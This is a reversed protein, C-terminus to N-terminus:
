FKEEVSDKGDAVPRNRAELALGAFWAVIALGFLVWFVARVGTPVMTGSDSTIDWEFFGDYVAAYLLATTVVGAAIHFWRLVSRRTGTNANSGKTFHAVLGISAQVLM